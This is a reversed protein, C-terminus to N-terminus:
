LLVIYINWPQTISQVYQVKLTEQKWNKYEMACTTIMPKYILSILNQILTTPWIYLFKSVNRKPVKKDHWDRKIALSISVLMYTLNGGGHMKENETEQSM